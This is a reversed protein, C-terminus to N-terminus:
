ITNTKKTLIFNTLKHSSRNDKYTCYPTEIIQYNFNSVEFAKKWQSISYIRDGLYPDSLCGMASVQKEYETYNHNFMKIIIEIFRKTIFKLISFNSHPTENILIIKGDNAVVRNLEKLLGILNESHHVASSAVIIDYYNDDQLIPQFLGRIPTIKGAKGDLIKIVEPLMKNLNNVDSDLADISAVKDNLSLLASLWGTGCGIDLLKSNPKDIIFTWDLFAMSEFFYTMTKFFKINEEPNEWIYSYQPYFRSISKSWENSILNIQDPQWNEM